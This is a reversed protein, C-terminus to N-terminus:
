SLILIIGSLLMGGHRLILGLARALVVISSAAERSRMELAAWLGGLMGITIIPMLLGRLHGSPDDRFPTYGVAPLWDLQIALVLIMIMGLWFVPISALGAASMRVATFEPSRRRLGLGLSWALLTALGGGLVMLELTVPLRSWLLSQASRRTRFSEVESSFPWFLVVPPRDRFQELLRPDATIGGLATEASLSTAQLLILAFVLGVILGIFPTVFRAGTVEHSESILPDLSLGCNSCYISELHNEVGCRSCHIVGRAGPGAGYRNEGPTGKGVYWILLIISGIIPVLSIFVWWGSKGVDHLRRVSVALSPLFTGIAFALSLLFGTTFADVILAVLSGLFVFLGWYWYESRLSRGHFTAYQRFGSSIAEAFGM